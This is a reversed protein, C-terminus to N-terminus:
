KPTRRPIRAGCRVWERFSGLDVLRPSNRNDGAKLSTFCNARVARWIHATSLGSISTCDSGIRGWEQEACERGRTRDNM